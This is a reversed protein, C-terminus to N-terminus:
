AIPWLWILYSVIRREISQTSTEADLDISNIMKIDKVYWGPIQLGTLYDNEVPEITNIVQEEATDVPVTNSFGAPNIFTIDINISAQWEYCQKSRETPQKTQSQLLIYKTPVPTTDKPVKKHWVPLSTAASLAAILAQRVPVNPNKVM